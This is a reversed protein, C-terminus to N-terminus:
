RAAAPSRRVPSVADFLLSPFAGLCSKVIHKTATKGSALQESTENVAYQVSLELNQTQVALLMLTVAEPNLANMTSRILDDCRADPKEMGELCVFQPSKGLRSLYEARFVKECERHTQDELDEYEREDDELNLRTNSRFAEYKTFVAIVPVNKDPCINHFPEIDLSPRQNDMPICYWIAHLRDQLRKRGSRDRVFEQIIQLENTSGSEFGRTDHFVYGEHNSFVLEDTIDHQGRESTPDLHIKTRTEKGNVVEVRYTDPSNTTDCVRQLISTKGANARGAILVRFKVKPLERRPAANTNM